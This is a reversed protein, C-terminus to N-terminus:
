TAVMTPIMDVSDKTCVCSLIKRHCVEIWIYVGQNVKETQKSVRKFANQFYVYGLLATRPSTYMDCINLEWSGRYCEGRNM